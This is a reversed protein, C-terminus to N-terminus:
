ASSRLEGFKMTRSDKLITPLDSRGAPTVAATYIGTQSGHQYRNHFQRNTSSFHVPGPSYKGCRLSQRLGGQLLGICLWTLFSFFSVAPSGVGGMMVFWGGEGRLRATFHIDTVMSIHAEREPRICKGGDQGYIDAGWLFGVIWERVGEDYTVIHKHGNNPTVMTHLSSPFNSPPPVNSLLVSPESSFVEM